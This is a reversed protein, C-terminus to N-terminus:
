NLKAETFSAKIVSPKRRLRATAARLKHKLDAQDDGSLISM